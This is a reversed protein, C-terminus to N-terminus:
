LKSANDENYERGLGHASLVSSINVCVASWSYTGHDNVVLCIGTSPVVAQFIYTHSGNIAEDRSQPPYSFISLTMIHRELHFLKPFIVVSLKDIPKDAVWVCNSDCPIITQIM